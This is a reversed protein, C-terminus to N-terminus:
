HRKFIRQGDSIPLGPVAEWDATEKKGAAWECNGSM